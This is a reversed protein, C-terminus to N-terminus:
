TQPQGSPTYCSGTAVLDISYGNTSSTNIYLPGGDLPVTISKVTGAHASAYAPDSSTQVFELYATSGTQQGSRDQTFQVTISRCTSANWVQNQQYQQYEAAGEQDTYSFLRNGVQVTGSGNNFPVVPVDGYATVPVADSVGVVAGDSEIAIRFSYKGMADLKPPTVSGGASTLTQVDEFTQGFTRQLM